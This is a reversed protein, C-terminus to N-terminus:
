KDRVLAEKQAPYRLKLVELENWGVVVRISVALLVTLIGLALSVSKGKQKM